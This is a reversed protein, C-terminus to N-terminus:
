IKLSGPAIRRGIEHVAAMYDRTLTNEDAETVKGKWLRWNGSTMVHTVDRSGMSYIVNALVNSRPLASISSRLVVLDALKGQELTGVENEVGLARAPITTVMALLHDPSIRTEPIRANRALIGAIKLEALCDASDNSAACDTGIAMPIDLADALKINALHDYLVTSTPCYGMTAGSEKVLKFDADSASTLHVVLSKESLAGAKVAAQVPSMGDRNFVRKLEGDSQSLHMHLPLGNSKAYDACRKLLSPSVTDAAHPAVTFRILNSFSSKEILSQARKWSDDGPFAGGLDAITEGIWARAGIREFAKAVGASFYYHDVFSTVGGRIGDVIYSYSLPELLELSLSKEAPFLFSEIMNVRGHGLGRFFGMPVHTHSNFLGPIIISSGADIFLTDPHNKQITKSPGTEIIKGGRILLAGDELVPIFPGPIIVANGLIFESTDVIPLDRDVSAL